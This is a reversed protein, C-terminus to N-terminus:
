VPGPVSCTSLLRPNLLQFRLHCERHLHFHWSWSGPPPSSLRPSPRRPSAPLVANGSPRPIAGQGRPPVHAAEGPERELEQESEREQTQLGKRPEVLFSVHILRLDHLHAPRGIVPDDVAGGHRAERVQPLGVQFVRRGHEQVQLSAPVHPAAPAESSCLAEGHRAGSLGRGARHTPHNM